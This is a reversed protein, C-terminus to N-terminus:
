TSCPVSTGSRAGSCLARAGRGNTGTLDVWPPLRSAGVSGRCSRSGPRDCRRVRHRGRSSRASRRVAGTTARDPTPSRAAATRARAAPPSSGARAPWRGPAV